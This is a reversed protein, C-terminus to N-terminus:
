HAQDALSSPTAPTPSQHLFSTCFIVIEVSSMEICHVTSHKWKSKLETSTQKYLYENQFIQLRAIECM